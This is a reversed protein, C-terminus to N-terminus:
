RRTEPGRGRWGLLERFRQRALEIDRQATKQSRKQFAHLVYVAEAFRAVYLVRHELDTHVRIERVGPAVSPMPKWDCPELERQVRRLQFGAVRRADPPFTRLDTRSSGLWLLPKEAM